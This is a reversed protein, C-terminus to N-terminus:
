PTLVFVRRWEAMGWERQFWEDVTLVGKADNCPPCALAYNAFRDAGGRSRPQMHEVEPWRYGDLPVLRGTGLDTVICLLADLTGVPVLPHDCYWCAWGPPLAALRALMRTRPTARCVPHLVNDM